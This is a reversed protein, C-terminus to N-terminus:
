QYLLIQKKNKFCVCKNTYGGEYIALSIKKMRRIKVKEDELSDVLYKVTNILAIVVYWLRSTSSPFMEICIKAKFQEDM